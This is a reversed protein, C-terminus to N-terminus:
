SKQWSCQSTLKLKETHRNAHTIDWKLMWPGVLTTDFAYKDEEDKCNKDTESHRDVKNFAEWDIKEVPTKESRMLVSQKLGYFGVPKEPSHWRLDMSWRIVDSRNNLSRHPIMNNILLMGGYPVPCLVKDKVFDVNLTKAAHEEDTEIYWTDRWCGTHRAVKGALHGGSIVEMCGNEENADLFPIWATPYLVNYSENDFYASDQHWPVTTADNQPTKTRLNWVPHGAIEPGILQEVVNLLRENAWLDCFAETLSGLKHLIINAGPFEKEIYLLRQFFDHEKYLNKIKGGDYLKQALDDVLKEVSNRCPGLEEETFFNPVLLYGLSPQCWYNGSGLTWGRCHYIRM